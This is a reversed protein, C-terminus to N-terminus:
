AAVRGDSDSTEPARQRDTIADYAAVRAVPDKIAARQSDTIAVYAAVRAVPDAVM